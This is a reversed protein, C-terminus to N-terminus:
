TTRVERMYARAATYMHEKGPFQKMYDQMQHRFCERMEAQPFVDRVAGILGKSANCHIV